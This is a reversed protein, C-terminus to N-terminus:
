TIHELIFLTNFEVNSRRSPLRALLVKAKGKKTFKIIGVKERDRKSRKRDNRESKNINEPGFNTLDKRGDKQENRRKSLEKKRTGKKECGEKNTSSISM